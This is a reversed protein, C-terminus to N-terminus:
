SGHVLDRHPLGKPASGSRISRLGEIWKPGSSGSLWGLPCLRYPCSGLRQAQMLHVRSRSRRPCLTARWTCATSDSRGAPGGSIRKNSGLDPRQGIVAARLLHISHFTGAAQECVQRTITAVRGSGSGPLRVPGEFWIEEREFVLWGARASSRRVQNTYSETRDNMLVYRKCKTAHVQFRLCPSGSM